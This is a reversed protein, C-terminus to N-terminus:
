PFPESAADTPPAPVPESEVPPADPPPPPVPAVEVVAPVPTAEQKEAELENRAAAKGALHGARFGTRRGIRNALFALTAVFGLLGVFPKYTDPPWPQWLPSFLRVYIGSQALLTLVGMLAFPLGVVIFLGWAFRPTADPARVPYRKVDASGTRHAATPVQADMRPPM